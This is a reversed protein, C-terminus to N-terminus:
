QVTVLIALNHHFQGPYRSLLTLILTPLYLCKKTFAQNTCFLVTKELFFGHIETGAKRHCGSYKVLIEIGLKDLTVFWFILGPSFFFIRALKLFLLFNHFTGNLHPVTLLIFTSISFLWISLIQLLQWSEKFTSKLSLIIIRILYNNIKGFLFNNFIDVNAFAQFFLSLVLSQLSHTDQKERPSDRGTLPHIPTRPVSRTVGPTVHYLNIWPRSLWGDPWFLAIAFTSPIKIRVYGRTGTFDFVSGDSEM